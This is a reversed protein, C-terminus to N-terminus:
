GNNPPSTTVVDLWPGPPVDTADVFQWTVHDDDGDLEKFGLCGNLAPSVDMGAGQTKDGSFKTNAPRADSDGFVYNADHYLSGSSPGADEVQGYCTDGNPGTIAVWANKLYSFSPDTCDAAPYMSAWPVVQCREAYATKDNMDDFPLDLYFPNESPAAGNYGTDTTPFYGNVPTRKETACQFSDGTGSAIGDCGGIPAGTCDTSPDTGINKGGSWHLAWQSDYTSCVQSGDGINANFIEGVWFTTSVINTHLPYSGGGPVTATTTPETTVPATTTTPETTTVPATTTTGVTTTAETTTTPTTTTVPVTTTVVTTTPTTTTRVTTTTVPQTTVVTTTPAPPGMTTTPEAPTTTVVTTTTPLPSPVPTPKPKPAPKTKAYYGCGKKFALTQNRTPHVNRRYTFCRVKPAAPKSVATNFVSPKPGAVAYGVAFLAAALAATLWPKMPPLSRPM